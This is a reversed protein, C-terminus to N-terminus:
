FPTPSSVYLSRTEYGKDYGILNVRQFDNLVTFYHPTLPDSM